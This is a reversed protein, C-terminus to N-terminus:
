TMIFYLTYPETTIYYCINVHLTFFKRVTRTHLFSTSHNTTCEQLWVQCCCWRVHGWKEQTLIDFTMSTINKFCIWLEQCFHCQSEWVLYLLLSVIGICNWKCELLYHKQFKYMKVATHIQILIKKFFHLVTLRKWTYQITTLLMVKDQQMQHQQPNLVSNHTAYVIRWPCNKHRRTHASTYHEAVSICHPM